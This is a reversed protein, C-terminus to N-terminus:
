MSGATGKARTILKKMKYPHDEYAQPKHTYRTEQWENGALQEQVQPSHHHAINSSAIRADDTYTM